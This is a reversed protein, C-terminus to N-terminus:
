VQVAHMEVESVDAGPGTQRDDVTDANPDISPISSKSSETARKDAVLDAPSQPAMEPAKGGRKGSSLGCNRALVFFLCLLCLLFVAGGVAVGAIGGNSM